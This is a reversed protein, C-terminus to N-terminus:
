GEGVQLLVKGTLGAAMLRFGEDAEELPFCHTILREVDLGARYLALM